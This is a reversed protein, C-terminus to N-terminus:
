PQAAARSHAVVRAESLAYDYLAVEDIDGIFPQDHGQGDAGITFPVSSTGPVPESAPSAAAPQGDVYLRQTVGDYTGVLHHYAGLGIERGGAGAGGGATERYIVPRADSGVFLLYGDNIVDHGAVSFVGHDATVSTPRAWAEVSYPVRGGFALGASSILVSSSTGDFRCATDAEGQIAGPVGCTVSGSFSGERHFPSSDYPPGATGKEGLRLYLVPRDALIEASYRTLANADNAPADIAVLADNASADFPAIGQSDGSLGELPTTLLCSVSGLLLLLSGARRSGM